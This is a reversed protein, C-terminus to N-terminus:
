KNLVKGPTMLAKEIRAEEKRFVDMKNKYKGRSADDYFKDIYSLTIVDDDTAAQNVDRGGRDGTPSIHQALPDRGKKYSIFENFFGAVRGVDGASEARKFLIKRIYGSYPDIGDMYKVFEPDVNIEAYDPVAEGLKGLFSQVNSRKIREVEAQEAKLRLAKQQELEAKLPDAVQATMKSTMKSIATIADEGLIEREEDTLLDTPVVPEVKQVEKTVNKLEEELAIKEEKASALEQRLEYALGDHHSRLKNYRKKWDTYKKRKKASTNTDKQSPDDTTNNVFNEEVANDKVDDTGSTTDKTVTTGAEAFSKELEGIEKDMQELRSM